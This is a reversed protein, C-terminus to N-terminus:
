ERSTLLNIVKSLESYDKDIIFMHDYGKKVSYMQKALNRAEDVEYTYWSKVEVILNLEKIYFDSHYTHEKDEFIYKLSPGQTVKNLMGLSKCYDLFHKENEGRYYMDTGPYDYAKFGSQQQRKHVEPDKMPHSVGYKEKCTAIRRKGIEVIEDETKADWAAKISSIWENIEEETKVDWAARIQALVDESCAPAIGGYRVLNTENRKETNNYWEYGYRELKTQKNQEMNNYNEDGHRELNTQKIKLKCEETQTYWEVNYDNLCTMIRLQRTEEKQEDTRKQLTKSINQGRIAKEDESKANWSVSKRIAQLEIRCREDTNCTDFYRVKFRNFMRNDGCIPCKPIETLDNMLLYLKEQYQKPEPFLADIITRHKRYVTRRATGNKGQLLAKLDKATM